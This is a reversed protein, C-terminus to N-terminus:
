QDKLLLSIFYISVIFIGGVISAIPAYWVDRFSEIIVKSPNDKQYYLSVSDGEKIRGLKTSYISEGIIVESTEKTKFSVQPYYYNKLGDHYEQVVTVGVIEGKAFESNNFFVLIKSIKYFGYIILLVSVFIVFIKITKDTSM